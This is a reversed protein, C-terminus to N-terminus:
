VREEIDMKDIDKVVTNCNYCQLSLGGNCWDNSTRNHGRLKARGNHGALKAIGSHDASNANGNHDEFKANDRHDELKANGSHGEMSTMAAKEHWSPMVM